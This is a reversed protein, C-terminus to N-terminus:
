VENFKCRYFFFNVETVKNCSTPHRANRGSLTRGWLDRLRLVMNITGESKLQWNATSCCAAVRRCSFPSSSPSWWSPSWRDSPGCGTSIWQWCNPAMPSDIRCCAWIFSCSGLTTGTTLCLLIILCVGICVVYTCWWRYM